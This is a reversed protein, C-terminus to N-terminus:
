DSSWGARWHSLSLHQGFAVWPNGVLAGPRHKCVRLLAGSCLHRWPRPPGLRLFLPRLTARRSPESYPVVNGEGRKKDKLPFM